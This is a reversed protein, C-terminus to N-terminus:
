KETLGATSLSNAQEPSFQQQGGLVSKAYLEQGPKAFLNKLAIEREKPPLQALAQLMQPQENPFTQGYASSLKSQENRQNIQQLKQDALAQLGSGLGTGFKEGLSSQKPFIFAM